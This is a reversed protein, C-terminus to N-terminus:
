NADRMLMRGGNDLFLRRYEMTRTEPCAMVADCFDQPPQYGHANIYHLILEPCVFLRGEFPVFLNASGAAEQEFQCLECEHFGAVVFPQFPSILLVKLRRYVDESIPGKNFPRERGLWGIARLTDAPEEGFYPLPDLDIYTAM